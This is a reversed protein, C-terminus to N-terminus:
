NYSTSITEYSGYIPQIVSVIIFGVVLGMIVIMVPELYSVLKNLALESDYELQDAISVLMVDLAGTEEGVMISSSLKKTFGDVTEVAESLNHGARVQSIVTEFQKEIYTNGITDRAINLCNIISIGASYLSSLTRAFRATYIVKLLKGAIPMHLLLKDKQYKVKPISFLVKIAVVLIVILVVFLYWKQTVYGSIGLLIETSVPLSEMQDFLSQFQPIVYSMIIAVVAVIMVCLIKPYTMSSKIKGNLRYEKDYYDAMRICVQDLNGSAEASRLMNIFLAPFAEGQESLAESLATGSRVSKLLKEYIDKETASISESEAAIHLAKVLSVGAGTLTGINRAFEAVVNSKLKKTSKKKEKVQARILYKKEQKLKEHLEIEDNAQLVGTIIKGQEDQAKYKYRTV